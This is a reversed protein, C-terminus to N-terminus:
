YKHFLNNILEVIERALLLVDEEDRCSILNGDVVVSEEFKKFFNSGFNTTKIIFGYLKKQFELDLIEEKLSKRLTKFRGWSKLTAEIKIRLLIGPFDKNLNETISETECLYKNESILQSSVYDKHAQHYKLQNDLYEEKNKLYEKDSYSFSLNDIILHVEGEKQNILMELGHNKRQIRIYSVPNNIIKNQIEQIEKENM